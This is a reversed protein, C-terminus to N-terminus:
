QTLNQIGKGYYFNEVTSKGVKEGTLQHIERRVTEFTYDMTVGSKKRTLYVSLVTGTKSNSSMNSSSNISEHSRNSAESQSVVSLQDFNSRFDKPLQM